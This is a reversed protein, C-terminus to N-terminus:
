RRRSSRTSAVPEFADDDDDSIEDDSLEAKAKGKGRGGVQSGMQSFNLQSQSSPKAKTSAARKPQSKPVPPEDLMVIDEDDDDEVFM